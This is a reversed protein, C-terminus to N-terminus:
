ARTAANGERVDSLLTISDDHEYQTTTSMVTVLKLQEFLNGDQGMSEIGTQHIQQLMEEGVISAMASHLQGALGHLRTLSPLGEDSNSGKEKGSTVKREEKFSKLYDAITTQGKQIAIDLATLGDNNTHTLQCLKNEVLYHVIRMHGGQCALHLVTNGRSDKKDLVPIDQECIFRVIDLHGRAAAIHCPTMDNFDLMEVGYHAKELLFKLAELQGHKAATHLLTGDSVCLYFFSRSYEIEGKSNCFAAKLTEVDGVSCAKVVEEKTMEPTTEDNNANSFANEKNM